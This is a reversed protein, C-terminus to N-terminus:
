VDETSGDLLLDRSPSQVLPNGQLFGVETGATRPCPEWPNGSGSSLRQSRSRAPSRWWTGRATGPQYVLRNRSGSAHSSVKMDGPEKPVEPCGSHDGKPM